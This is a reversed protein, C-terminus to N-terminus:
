LYFYICSERLFTDLICVKKELFILPGGSLVYAGYNRDIFVTSIKIIKNKNINMKNKNINMKNKNINMKNKNMKNINM